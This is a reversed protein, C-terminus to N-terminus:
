QHDLKPANADVGVRVVLDFQALEADVHEAFFRPHADAIRLLVIELVQLDRRRLVLKRSCLQSDFARSPWAVITADDGQADSDVHDRRPRLSKSLQRLAPGIM